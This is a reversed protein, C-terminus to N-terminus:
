SQLKLRVRIGSLFDTVNIKGAGEADFLNFVQQTEEEALGIEADNLIKSFEEVNLDNNNAMRFWRGLSLIGANGKALCLHRLKELSDEILGSDLARRSKHMMETEHRSIIHAM